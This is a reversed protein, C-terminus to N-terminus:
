QVEHKTRLQRPSLGYETRFAKSFHSMDQFGWKFAIETISRKNETPNELMAKCRKLREKKLWTGVTEGTEKFLQHLYRTSINHAAAIYSPSLDYDSLHTLCYQRIRELLLRKHTSNPGMREAMFAQAFLELTGRMARKLQAPEMQWGISELTLLHNAFLTGPGNKSDITSGVREKAFPFVSELEKAPTLLTLKELDTRVSFKMPRESDWLLITGPSLFTETGGIEVVEEGKLVYLISFFEENTSALEGRARFGSTPSCQCRSLRFGDYNRHRLKASFEADVGKQLSWPSFSGTLAEAWADSRDSAIHQDLSWSFSDPHDSCTDVISDSM